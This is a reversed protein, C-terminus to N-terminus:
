HDTVVSLALAPSYIVIKEVLKIARLVFLGSVTSDAMDVTACASISMPPPLM